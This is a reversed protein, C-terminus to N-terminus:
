KKYRKARYGEAKVPLGAAWEPLKCMLMAAANVSGFGEDVESVIEDHVTLVIPYGAAELNFMGSVLLDRAIAQVANECARGGYTSVRKWQRTYTDIGMYTVQGEADMEPQLYSLRRGSPLRMLLWEGEVKFIVKKSPIGFAIGPQRIAAKAASELDYWLKVIFPNADRWDSKIVEAQDESIDVGYQKAMKAFAMRGGGYGLALVAVKGIFRQEPTVTEIRGNYIKAATYEYIKGHGAFVALVDRQGALWALVRAEIAAFDLALLDKGESPVLMGRVCSAFVKMPDVGYLFRVLELSRAKFAGIATDADKIVPRFMNQLQVLLGAWRGTGAGYYLHMGRLRGDEGTAREMSTYKSVAKMAHTSRIKLVTRINEPCAPDSLAEIVTPAQMDPLNPYGNARVWEALKGTQTPDCGTLERCREELYAKYEDILAQADAVAPLDVGIGRDNIKQDLEWVRQESASLDPLRNDLDREALVDDLCYLALEKYKEPFAEITYRKDKGTRPKALQLMNMRGVAKKPFSGIANAADELSRPLGASAAKAATCLMQEPPIDPFGHRKGVPGSLILREFQANHACVTAGANIAKLLAAPAQVGTFYPGKWGIIVEGPIHAYPFWTVVPGDDICYCVVLLETSPDAAYRYLGSLKLDCESYTEVDIHIRMPGAVRQRARCDGQLFDVKSM